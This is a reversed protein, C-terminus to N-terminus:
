PKPINITIKDGVKMKLKLNIPEYEFWGKENRAFHAEDSIRFWLKPGELPPETESEYFTLNNITRIKMTEKGM